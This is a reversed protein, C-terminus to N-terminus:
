GFIEDIIEKVMTVVMWIGGLLVIVSLVGVCMNVPFWEWTWFWNM